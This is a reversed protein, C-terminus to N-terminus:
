EEKMYKLQNLSGDKLVSPGKMQSLINKTKFAIKAKKKSIIPPQWKDQTTSM